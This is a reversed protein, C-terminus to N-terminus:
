HPLFLETFCGALLGDPWVVEACCSQGGSFPSCASWAMAPCRQQAVPRHGWGVLAKHGRHLSEGGFPYLSCVIAGNELTTGPSQTLALLKDENQLSRPCAGDRNGDHQQLTKGAWLPREGPVACAGPGLWGQFAVSSVLGGDASASCLLLFPLAFASPICLLESLHLCM